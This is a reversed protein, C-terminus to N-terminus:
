TLYKWNPYRQFIENYWQWSKNSEKVCKKGWDNMLNAIELYGSKSIRLYIKMPPLPSTVPVMLWNVSPNEPGRQLPNFGHFIGGPFHISCPGFTLLWWSVLEKARTQGPIWPYVTATLQCWDHPSPEMPHGLLCLHDMIGANKPEVGSANSKTCPSARTVLQQCLEPISWIHEKEWIRERRL